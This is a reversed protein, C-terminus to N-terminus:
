KDFHVAINHSMNQDTLCKTYVSGLDTKGFYEALCSLVKTDMVSPFM